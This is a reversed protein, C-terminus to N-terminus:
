LVYRIGSYCLAFNGSITVIGTNNVIYGYTFKTLNSPTSSVSTSPDCIIYTKAPLYMQTYSIDNETVQRKEAYLDTNFNYDLDKFYKDQLIEVLTM